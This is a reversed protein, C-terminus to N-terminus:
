PRSNVNRTQFEPAPQCTSVGTLRVTDSEPTVRAFHFARIFYCTASQRDVTTMALSSPPQFREIRAGDTPSRDADPLRLQFEPARHALDPTTQFPPSVQGPKSQAAMPVACASALLPPLFLRLFRM